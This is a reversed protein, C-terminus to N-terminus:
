YMFKDIAISIFCDVVWKDNIKTYADLRFLNIRAYNNNFKILYAITREYNFVVCMVIM